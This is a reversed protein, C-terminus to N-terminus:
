LFLVALSGNWIAQIATKLSNKKYEGCGHRASHLIIIERLWRNLLPNNSCMVIVVSHEWNGGFYVCVCESQCCMKKERAFPQSFYVSFLENQTSLFHSSARYLYFYFWRSYRLSNKNTLILACLRLKRFSLPIHVAVFGPDIVFLFSSFSRVFSTLHSFHFLFLITTAVAIKRERERETKNYTNQNANIPLTWWKCSLRFLLHVCWCVCLFFIFISFSNSKVYM